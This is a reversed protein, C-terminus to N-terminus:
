SGLKDQEHMRFRSPCGSRETSGNATGTRQPTLLGHEVEVDERGVIGHGHALGDSFDQRAGSELV